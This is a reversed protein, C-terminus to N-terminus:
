STQDIIKFPKIANTVYHADFSCSLATQDKPSYKIKVEATQLMKRGIVRRVFGGPAFGDFILATYIPQTASLGSGPEQASFAAGTTASTDNNSVLALNALTVEALSTTITFERKTQRRGAVDIIQDVDLEVYTRKIALEVGGLTGGCDLWASAGTAPPATNVTADTPENTSVAAAYLTGPGQILNTVTASM